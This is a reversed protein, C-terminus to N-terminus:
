KKLSFMSHAFSRFHGVYIKLEELNLLLANTSSHVTYICCPIQGNNIELM